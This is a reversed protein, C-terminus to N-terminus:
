PVSQEIASADAGRFIPAEMYHFFRWGEPTHRLLATVWSEGDHVVDSEVNGFRWQSLLVAVALEPGPLDLTVISTRLQASRVRAALRSWHRHLESWGIVPAAYEEGIYVPAPHARDWFDAVARLELQAWCSDHAALLADIENRAEAVADM